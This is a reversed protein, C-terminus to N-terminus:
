TNIRILKVYRIYKSGNINKGTNEDKYEIEVDKEKYDQNEVATEFRLRFNKNFYEESTSVTIIKRDGSTISAGTVGDVKEKSGTLHKFWSTIDDWWRKEKGFVQLTKIYKGNQDVLSVVMYAAEGTYNTLQILCKHSITSSKSKFGFSLWILTVAFLITSIRKMRASLNNIYSM